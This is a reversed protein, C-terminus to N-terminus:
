EAGRAIEVTGERAGRAEGSDAPHRKGGSAPINAGGSRSQSQHVQDERLSLLTPPM